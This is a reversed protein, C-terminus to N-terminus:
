TRVSQHARYRTPSYNDRRKQRGPRVRHDPLEGDANKADSITWALREVFQRAAHDSSLHVRDVDEDLWVSADAPLQSADTTVIIRPM